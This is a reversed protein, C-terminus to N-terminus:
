FGYDNTNAHLAAGILDPFILRYDIGHARLDRLAELLVHDKIVIKTLLKSVGKAQLFGELEFTNRQIL